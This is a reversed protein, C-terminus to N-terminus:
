GWHKALFDGCRKLAEKSEAGEPVVVPWVHVLGEGEFYDVDVGEARAKEVFRRSDSLLIERTGTEIHLPPLGSCDANLPSAVANGPDNPAYAFAMGQLAEKSVFPDNSKPDDISDGTLELDTWPSFGIACPPLAVGGDRLAVLTSIALEGGASDGVIAMNAVSIGSAVIEKFAAVSDDLAAPCEAEPALSYHLVCIRAGTARALRSAFERYAINDGIIYGGGHLYLIAKGKDSNPASVWDAACGAITTEEITIDDAIPNAGLMARYNDRQEQLTPAVEPAPATTLVTVFAEHEVSPM